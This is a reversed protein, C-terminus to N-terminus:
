GYKQEIYKSLESIQQILKEQLIDNGIDTLFRQFIKARGTDLKRSLHWLLAPHANSLGKGLRNFGRHHLIKKLTEEKGDWQDLNLRAFTIPESTKLLKKIYECQRAPLMNQIKKLQETKIVQKIDVALDHLGLYDVLTQLQRKNLKLLINLPHAPLIPAPIFDKQDSTLWKFVIEKVFNQAFPPPECEPQPLRFHKQLKDKQVDSFSTLIMEKDSDVFPELFPIFWSYHIERLMETLDFSVQLPNNEPTTTKSLQASASDSLFRNLEEKKSPECRSLLSQFAIWAATNM